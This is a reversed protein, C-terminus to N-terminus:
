IRILKYYYFFREENSLTKKVTIRVLFNKGNVKCRYNLYSVNEIGSTNKEDPVTDYYIAKELM